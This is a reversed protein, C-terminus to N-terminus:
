LRASSPDVKNAFNSSYGDPLSLMRFWECLARRQEVSLTYKAKPKFSNHNERTCLHLEERACVVVVVVERACLTELDLRANVNDKAKGPVDMVTHLINENFNKEIHM